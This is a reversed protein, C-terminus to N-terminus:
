PLVVRDRDAGARDGVEAEDDSGYAWRTGICVFAVAMGRSGLVPQEM